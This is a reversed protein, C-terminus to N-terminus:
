SSAPSPRLLRYECASLSVCGFSSSKLKARYMCLALIPHAEDPAPEQLHSARCLTRLGVGPEHASEVVTADPKQCMQQAHVSAPHNCAPRLSSATATNCTAM